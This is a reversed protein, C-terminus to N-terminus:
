RLPSPQGYIVYSIAVKTVTDIVDRQAQTADVLIGTHCTISHPLLTHTNDRLTGPMVALQTM